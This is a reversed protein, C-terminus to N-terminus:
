IKMMEKLEEITRPKGILLCDNDIMILQKTKHDEDFPYGGIWMSLSLTLDNITDKLREVYENNEKTEYPTILDSFRNTKM